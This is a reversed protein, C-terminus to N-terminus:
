GRKRSPKRRVGNGREARELENPGGGATTGMARAGRGKRPPMMKKRKPM